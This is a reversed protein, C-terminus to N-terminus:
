NSPVIRFIAKCKGERHDPRIVGLNQETLNSRPYDLRSERSDKPSSVHQILLNVLDDIFISNGNANTGSIFYGLCRDDNAIGRIEGALNMSNAFDNTGNTNQFMRNGVRIVRIGHLENDWLVLDTSSV